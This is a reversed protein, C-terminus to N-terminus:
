FLVLHFLAKLLLGIICAVQTAVKRALKLPWILLILAM